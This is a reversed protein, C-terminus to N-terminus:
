VPRASVEGSGVQIAQALDDILDDVDEIGVSLRLLDDTVGIDGRQEATLSGHTMSAPLCILSEVGGVSTALNFIRTNRAVTRARESGGAIRFSVIGGFGRMQKKALDHQPHSPLGPYYVHTVDGLWPLFDAITIANQEHAQMRIALTKAGRMALYVDWPGPIAGAANQYFAIEEQLDADNTLVVGGVVDSHGCIYKTTSHMVVDAGCKLPLQFYPSAFTNDVALIQGSRKLAAIAAIDIVKLLPNTPTEIWILRTNPRMAAQVAHPQTMDVFTTDVGFRSLYRTFLRHTGGYIDATAIVHDGCRLLATIASAAAMGSGFACGFKAEELDAIQREFAARTPNATRSYDFGKTVGVRPLTFTATQYIPVITAGTAACPDQGSRIARTSFGRSRESHGFYKSPM